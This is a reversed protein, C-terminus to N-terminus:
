RSRRALPQSIPYVTLQHVRATVMTAGPTSLSETKTRTSVSPLTPDSAKSVSMLISPHSSFTCFLHDLAVSHQSSRLTLHSVPPFLGSHNRARHLRVLSPTPPLLKHCHSIQGDSMVLRDPSRSVQSVSMVRADPHVSQHISKSTRRVRPASSVGCEPNPKRRTSLRAQNSRRRVFSVLHHSLRSLLCSSM